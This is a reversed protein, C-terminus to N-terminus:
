ATRPRPFPCTPTRTPLYMRPHVGRCRGRALHAQLEAARRPRVAASTGSVDSFRHPRNSCRADRLIPHAAGRISSEDARTWADEIFRAGGDLQEIATCIRDQLGTLYDRVTDIAPLPTM